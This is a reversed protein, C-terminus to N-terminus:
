IPTELPLVGTPPCDSRLGESWATAQAGGPFGSPEGVGRRPLVNGRLPPGPLATPRAKPRAGASGDRQLGNETVQKATGPDRESCCLRSTLPHFLGTERAPAPRPYPKSERGRLGQWLTSHPDEPLESNLVGSSNDETRLLATEKGM